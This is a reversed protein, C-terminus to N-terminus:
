PHCTVAPAANQSGVGGGNNVIATCHYGQPDDFFVIGHSTGNTDIIYSFPLTPINDDAQAQNAAAGCAVLLIAAFVFILIIKHFKTLKM